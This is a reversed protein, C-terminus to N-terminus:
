SFHIKKKTADEEEEEEESYRRTSKCRIKKAPKVRESRQKKPGIPSIIFFKELLIITQYLIAVWFHIHLRPLNSVQNLILNHFM